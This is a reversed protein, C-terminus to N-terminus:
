DKNLPFFAMRFLIKIHHQELNDAALNILLYLDADSM